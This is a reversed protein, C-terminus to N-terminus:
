VSDTTRKTVTVKDTSRTSSSSNGRVLAVILLIFVAGGVVWVWPQTYWEHTETTTTQTTTTTTATSASDQAWALAQTLTLLILVFAYRLSGPKFLNKMKFNKTLLDTCFLIAKLYEVVAGIAAFFYVSREKSYELVTNKHM